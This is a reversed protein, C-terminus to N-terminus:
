EGKIVKDNLQVIKKFIRSIKAQQKIEEAINNECYDVLTWYLIDLENDTLSM